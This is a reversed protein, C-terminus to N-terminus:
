RAKDAGLPPLSRTLSLAIVNTFADLLRYQDPALFQEPSEPRVGLVGVVGNPSRLPVYCRAASSLTDTGRGVAQGHQFAWTAVGFERDDFPNPDRLQARPQLRGDQDPLLVLVGCQFAESIARAAHHLLDDPGEAALLDRTFNYLASLFQARQRGSEAHLRVLDALFSTVLAVAFFVMFSPLYMRLDAVRFTYYPPV